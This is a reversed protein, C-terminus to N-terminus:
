PLSIFSVCNATLLLSCLGLFVKKLKLTQFHHLYDCAVWTPSGDLVVSWTSLM